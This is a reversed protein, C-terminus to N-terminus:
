LVSIQGKLVSLFMKEALYLNVNRAQKSNIRIHSLPMDGIVGHDNVQNSVQHSYCNHDLGM